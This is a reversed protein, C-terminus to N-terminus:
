VFNYPTCSKTGSLWEIIEGYVRRREREREREREGVPEDKGKDHQNGAV